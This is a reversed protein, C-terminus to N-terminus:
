LEDHRPWRGHEELFRRRAEERERDANSQLGLRMYANALAGLVASGILFIGAGQAVEGGVVVLVVGVVFVSVPLTVRVLLLKFRDDMAM